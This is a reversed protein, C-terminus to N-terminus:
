EVGSMIHKELLYWKGDGSEKKQVKSHLLKITLHQVVRPCLKTTRLASVRMVEFAAVDQNSSCLERFETHLREHTPSGM